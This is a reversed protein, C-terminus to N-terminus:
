FRVIRVWQGASRSTRSPSRTVPMLTTWLPTLFVILALRSSIRDAPAMPTQYRGSSIQWSQPLHRSALMTQETIQIKALGSNLRVLVTATSFFPAAISYHSSSRAMIRSLLTVLAISTLLSTTPAPRSRLPPTLRSLTPSNLLTSHIPAMIKLFDDETRSSRYVFRFYRAFFRGAFARTKPSNLIEKFRM